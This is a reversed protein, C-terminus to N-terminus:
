FCYDLINLYIIIYIVEDKYIPSLKDALRAISELFEVFSM